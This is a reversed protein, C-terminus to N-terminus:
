SRGPKGPETATDRDLRRQYETRIDNFFKEAVLRIGFVKGQLYALKEPEKVYRESTLVAETYERIRREFHLVMFAYLPTDIFTKWQSLTENSVDRLFAFGDPKDM